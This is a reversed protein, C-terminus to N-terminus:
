NMPSYKAIIDTVSKKGLIRQGTGNPHTGDSTYTSTNEFTIGSKAFEIVECGMFDAVERIADNYQPLSYFGNNTPFHSYYVRKFTQLTAMMIKATPYTERLKKVTLCLAEKFGYHGNVEDTTPYEWNYNNFYNDTLVDVPSHSFDNVGRYIIIVEPATRNMTGPTRIGCKRIQADHWAHSTKYIDSDSQHSSVSAGSWCVPIPNCQTFSQLVEWWVNMSAPNFNNPKGISKGIDANTPTFHVENGIESSTFTHGGLTLGSNVDYYTLYASLPVGVDASTITIEPVNPAEGENGNTSISDGIIAVNKGSLDLANDISVWNIFIVPAEPNNTQILRKYTHLNIDTLIQLTFINNADSKFVYPKNELTGGYPPFGAPLDTINAYESAGFGYWGNALYNILADNTESGITGLYVNENYRSCFRVKEAIIDLEGSIDANVDSKKRVLISFYKNDFEHLFTIRNTRWSSGFDIQNGSKFYPEDATIVRYEYTDDITWIRDLYHAKMYKTYARTNNDPLAQWGQLTGSYFKLTKPIFSTTNYAKALTDFADGTVKSDAGANAVTLSKDIAPTTPEINESLWEATATTITPDIITNLEGTSALTRLAELVEDSVDLNAFYNDIFEKYSAWEEKTATWEDQMERMIKIIEDLNMDHFNSYPFQRFIGM